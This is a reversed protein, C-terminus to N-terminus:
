AVLEDIEVKIYNDKEPVTPIFAKTNEWRPKRKRNPQLTSRTSEFQGDISPATADDISPPDESRKKPIFFNSCGNM